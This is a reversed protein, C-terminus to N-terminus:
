HWAGSSFTKLEADLRGAQPSLGDFTSSIRFCRLIGIVFDLMTRVANAQRTGTAVAQGWVEVELVASM